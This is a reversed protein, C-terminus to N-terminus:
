WATEDDEWGAGKGGDEKEKYSRKMTCAILDPSKLPKEAAKAATKNHVTAASSVESGFAATSAV